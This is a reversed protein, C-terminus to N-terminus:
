MNQVCHLFMITLFNLICFMEAYGSQTSENERSSHVKFLRYM